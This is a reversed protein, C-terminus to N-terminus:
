PYQRPYNPPTDPAIWWPDDDRRAVERLERLEGLVAPHGPEAYLRGLDDRAIQAGMSALTRAHFATLWRVGVPGYWRWPPCSAAMVEDLCVWGALERATRLPPRV